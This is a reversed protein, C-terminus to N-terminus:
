RAVSHATKRRRLLLAAAAVATLASAPEPVFAADAVGVLQTWTASDVGAWSSVSAYPVDFLKDSYITRYLVMSALLSGVPGAHYYDSTGGSLYLKSDFNMAAFADGVPALSVSEAGYGAALDQRALEYNTTLQNQMAQANVFPSPYFQGNGPQRAWTQYLVAEVGAGRGSSHNLVADYLKVADQRFKAPNAASSYTTPMTSYEQLVVKDWTKGAIAAANVNNAPNTKVEGLHYALTQGDMLDAVITPKAHGDAQALQGVKTAVSNRITFSNGFFLLNLPDEAKAHSVGVFLSATVLSAPGLGAHLLNKM